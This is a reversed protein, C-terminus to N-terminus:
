DKYYSYSIHVVKDIVEDNSYPAYLVDTIIITVNPDFVEVPQNHDVLEIRNFTDGIKPLNFSEDPLIVVLVANNSGITVASIHAAKVELIKM